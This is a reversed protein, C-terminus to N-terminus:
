RLRHLLRLDILRGLPLGIGHLASCLISMLCCCILESFQGYKDAYDLLEPNTPNHATRWFNSGIARMSTVRFENVRDPVATGCGAFDQHNSFGQAPVKFGNLTFGTNPSWMADRFGINVSMADIIAGNAADTITTNVTYLYPVETNWLNITPAKVNIQPNYRNWGGSALSGATTSTALVGNGNATDLLTITITFNSAAARGNAVDVQAMILTSTTTQPGYSGNPGSTIPGARSAHFVRYVHIFSKHSPLPLPDSIFRAAAHRVGLRLSM